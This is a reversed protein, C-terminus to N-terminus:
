VAEKWDDRVPMFIQLDSEHDKIKLDKQALIREYHRIEATLQENNSEVNSKRPIGISGLNISNGHFIAVPMTTQLNDAIRSRKGHKKKKKRHSPQTLMLEEVIARVQGKLENEQATAEEENDW